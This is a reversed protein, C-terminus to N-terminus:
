LQQKYRAADSANKDEYKAKEEAPLTNWLEGCKKMAETHTLSESQKISVVNATTYYLYASLPKKPVVCDEGYKKKPNVYMDTSKVDNEDVFYGKEELEKLQNQYRQEDAMSKATYPEKDTDTMTKWIESSKTFAAKQDLNQEDKLKAVMQTNFYIWASTGKKPKLVFAEKKKESKAESKVKKTSM